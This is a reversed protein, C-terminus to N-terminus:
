KDSPLNYFEPLFNASFCASLYCDEHNSSWTKGEPEQRPNRGQSGMSLGGVEFFFHQSIARAQPPSQTVLFIMAPHAPKHSISCIGSSNVLHFSVIFGSLWLQLGRGTHEWSPRPLESSAGPKWWSFGQSFNVFWLLGVCPVTLLDRLHLMWVLLWRIFNKLLPTHFISLHLFLSFDKSPLSHSM